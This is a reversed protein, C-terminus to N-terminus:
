SSLQKQIFSNGSDIGADESKYGLFLGPEIVNWCKEIEHCSDAFDNLATM